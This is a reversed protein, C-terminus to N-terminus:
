SSFNKEQYKLVPHVDIVKENKSSIEQKPMM